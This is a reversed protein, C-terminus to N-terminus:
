ASENACSLQAELRGPPCHAGHRRIRCAARVVDDLRRLLSADADRDREEDEREERERVGPVAPVLRPLGVLPAARHFRADDIEPRADAPADFLHLRFFAVLDLGALLDDDELGTVQGRLAEGRETLEFLRPRRQLLEFRASPGLLDLLRARVRRGRARGELLGLRASPLLLDDRFAGAGLERQVASVASALDRTATPCVQFCGTYVFNVVLPRGRLTALRLNRGDADRLRYDGIQHGIV